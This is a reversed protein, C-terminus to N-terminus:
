PLRSKGKFYDSCAMAFPTKGQRAAMEEYVGRLQPDAMAAKAYAVAQAFRQQHAKQAASRETTSKRPRRAVIVHGDKSRRFVMDGVTGSIHTFPFNLKIKAM